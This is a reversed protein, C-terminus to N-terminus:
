FQKFFSGKMYKWLSLCFIKRNNRMESKKSLILKNGLSKTMLRQQFMYCPFKSQFLQFSVCIYDIAKKFKDYFLEASFHCFSHFFTDLM